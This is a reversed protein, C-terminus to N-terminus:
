KLIEVRGSDRLEGTDVPVLPKVKMELFWEAVELMAQRFTRGQQMKQRILKKFITANERLPQELFKAQGNAHEMELDEHIRMAYPATFTIGFAIPTERKANEKLKKLGQAIRTFGLKNKNSM